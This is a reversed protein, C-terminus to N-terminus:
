HFIGLSQGLSDLRDDVKDPLIVCFCSHSRGNVDITSHVSEIQIAQEVGFSSTVVKDGTSGIALCTGRPASAEALGFM